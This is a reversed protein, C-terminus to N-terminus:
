HLLVDPTELPVVNVYTRLISRGVREISPGLPSHYYIIIPIDAIQSFRSYLQVLVITCGAGLSSARGPGADGVLQIRSGREEQLHGM